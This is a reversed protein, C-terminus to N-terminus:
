WSRCPRASRSAARGRRGAAPEARASRRPDRRGRHRPHDAHRGRAPRGSRSADRGETRAASRHRPCTSRSTTSRSGTASSATSWARRATRRCCFSGSVARSSRRGCSRSCSPSHGTRWPFGADAAAVLKLVSDPEFQFEFENAKREVLRFVSSIKSAARVAAHVGIPPFYGFRGPTMHMLLLAGKTALDRRHDDIWGLPSLAMRHAPDFRYGPVEDPSMPLLMSEDFGRLQGREM